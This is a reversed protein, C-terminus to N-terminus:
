VILAPAQLYQIPTCRTVTPASQVAAAAPTYSLRVPQLMAAHLLAAPLRLAPAAVCRRATTTLRLPQCCIILTVTFIGSGQFSWM